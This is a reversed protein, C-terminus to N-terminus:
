RDQAHRREEEREIWELIRRARDSTEDIRAELRLLLENDKNAIRHMAETMDRMSVAQTQLATTLQNVTGHMQGVLERQSSAVEQQTRIGRDNQRYGFLLVVMLPIFLPGWARLVELVADPRARYIELARVSDGRRHRRRRRRCDMAAAHFPVRGQATRERSRVRRESKQLGTSAM